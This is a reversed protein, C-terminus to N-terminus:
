VFRAVAMTIVVIILIVSNINALTTGRANLRDLERAEAATPARGEFSRALKDARLTVPPLLGFGVFLTVVTGVFGAFIAIGWNSAFVWNVNWGRMIGTLAIGSGFTVISSLMMVPPLFRMISAFVPREINPGLARLRPLLLFTLFADSGVWFAGFGIHLIRWILITVDM